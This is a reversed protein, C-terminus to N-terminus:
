ESVSEYGKGLQYKPDTSINISADNAPINLNGKDLLTAEFRAGTTLLPSNRAQDPSPLFSVQIATDKKSVGFATSTAKTLNGVNWTVIRQEKNYSVTNDLSKVFTVYPPLPVIFKGNTFGSNTDVDLNITYTTAQGVTAPMPGTNKFAGSFYLTQMAVSSGERPTLTTTLRQTSPEGESGETNYTFSTNIYLNRGSVTSDVALESFEINFEVSDGADIEALSKNTSGNATATFKTSDYVAGDVSVSKPILLGGSLKFEVKADKVRVNSENTVVVRVKPQKGTFSIKEGSQGESYMQIKIPNKTLAIGYISEAFYNKITDDEGSGAHVKLTFKEGIEPSDSFSGTFRFIKEEGENLSGLSYVNKSIAQSSTKLIKMQKPVDLGILVSPIVKSVGRVSVIYEGDQAISLVSPGTVSMIVPSKTILIKQTVKKEFISETQPVKYFLTANVIKEEGELGSLNISLNKYIKNGTDVDGVQIETLPKPQDSGNELVDVVIYAEKFITRNSNGVIIQGNLDQGASTFTPMDLTLEIRDQRVTYGGNTFSYYAYAIASILLVLSFSFLGVSFFSFSRKLPDKDVEWDLKKDDFKPSWIFKQKDTKMLKKRVDDFSKRGKAYVIEDSKNLFEPKDDKQYQFVKKNENNNPSNEM